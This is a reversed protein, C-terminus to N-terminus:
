HTMEGMNYVFDSINYGSTDIMHSTDQFPEKTLESLKTTRKNVVSIDKVLVIEKVDDVEEMRNKIVEVTADTKEIQGQLLESSDYITILTWVSVVVLFYWPNISCSGHIFFVMLSTLLLVSMYFFSLMVKDKKDILTDRYQYFIIIIIFSVLGVYVLPLVTSSIMNSTCSSMRLGVPYFTSPQLSSSLGGTYDVQSSSMDSTSNDSLLSVIGYKTNSM